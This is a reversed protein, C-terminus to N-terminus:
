MAYFFLFIGWFLVFYMLPILVIRSRALITGAIALVTFVAPFREDVFYFLGNVRVNAFFHDISFM